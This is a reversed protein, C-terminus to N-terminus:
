GEVRADIVFGWRRGGALSITGICWGVLAGLLIDSPFHAGSHLRHGAVLIALAAFLLRGRPYLATLVVALGVASATHASPFSQAASPASTLPLFGQFTAAVDNTLFDFNRPRTRSIFLKLGAAALGGGLGASIVTAASRRQRVDICCVALAITVIGVSHGFPEVNDLVSRLFKPKGNALKYCLRSIRVDFPMVALAVLLLVAPLAWVGLRSGVRTTEALPPSADLETPRALSLPM